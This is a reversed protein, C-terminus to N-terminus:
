ALANGRTVCSQQSIPLKISDSDRSNNGVLAIFSLRDQQKVWPHPSSISEYRKWTYKCKLSHLLNPQFEFEARLNKMGLQLRNKYFLLNYSGLLSRRYSLLSLANTMWQLLGLNILTFIYKFHVLKQSIEPLNIHRILHCRM